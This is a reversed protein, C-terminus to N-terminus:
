GCSMAVAATKRADFSEAHIVPSVNRTAPPNRYHRQPSIQGMAFSLRWSRGSQGVPSGFSLTRVGMLEPTASLLTETRGGSKHSLDCRLSPWMGFGCKRFRCHDSAHIPKIPM